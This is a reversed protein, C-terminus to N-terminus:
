VEWDANLCRICSVPRAGHQDIRWFPLVIDSGHLGCLTVWPYERANPIEHTLGDRGDVLRQDPHGSSANLARRLKAIRVAPTTKTSM